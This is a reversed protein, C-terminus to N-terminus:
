CSNVFDNFNDFMFLCDECAIGLCVPGISDVACGEKNPISISRPVKLTRTEIRTVEKAITITRM